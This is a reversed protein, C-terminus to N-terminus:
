YPRYKRDNRSSEYHYRKQGSAREYRFGDREERKERSRQDRREASSRTAHDRNERNRERDRDRSRDRERERQKERERERSERDRGRDRNRERGQDSVQDRKEKEEKKEEKEKEREKETEKENESEKEKDKEQSSFSSSKSPNNEIQTGNQTSASSLFTSANLGNQTTTSLSSFESREGGEISKSSRIKSSPSYIDPSDHSIQEANIPIYKAKPKSYLELITYIIEQLEEVTTDFLEWWPPEQPLKTQEFRAAMFIAGVAITEPKFRVCLNTRLSDNLFNWARQRLKKLQPLDKGCIVETFALIFKHPHVTNLSFGLERLIYRETKILEGEYGL